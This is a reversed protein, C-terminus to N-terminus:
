SRPHRFPLFKFSPPTWACTFLALIADQHTRIGGSLRALPAGAPNAIPSQWGEKDPEEVDGLCHSSLSESPSSSSNFHRLM